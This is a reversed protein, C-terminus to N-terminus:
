AASPPLRGPLLARGGAVAAEDLEIFQPETCLYIPHKGKARGFVYLDGELEAGHNRAVLIVPAHNAMEVLRDVWFNREKITAKYTTLDGNIVFLDVSAQIADAVFWELCQATDAFYRDEDLHFDGAHAFRLPM